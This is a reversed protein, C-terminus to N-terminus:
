PVVSYMLEEPIDVVLTRSDAMKLTTSPSSRSLSSKTDVDTPAAYATITPEAAGPVIKVKKSTPVLRVQVL